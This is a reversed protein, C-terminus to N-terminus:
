STMFAAHAENKLKAAPQTISPGYRTILSGLSNFLRYFSYEVGGFLQVRRTYFSQTFLQHNEHTLYSM